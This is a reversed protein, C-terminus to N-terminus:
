YLGRVDSSKNTAEFDPAIVLLVSSPGRVAARRVITEVQDESVSRYDGLDLSVPDGRVVQLDGPLLQRFGDVAMDFARPPATAGNVSVVEITVLKANTQQKIVLM